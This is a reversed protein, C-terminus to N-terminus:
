SSRRAVAVAVLLGGSELALRGSPPAIQEAFGKWVRSKPPPRGAAELALLGQARDADLLAPDPHALGAADHGGVRHLGAGPDPVVEARLAALAVMAAIVVLGSSAIAQGVRAVSTVVASRSEDGARLRERYRFLLFLIYDTGIGFLVVILLATISEDLEFGIGKALLALVSTSLM